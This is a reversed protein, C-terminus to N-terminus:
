IVRRNGPARFGRKRDPWSAVGFTQPTPTAISGPYLQTGAQGISCRTFTPVAGTRGERRAALGAAPLGSVTVCLPVCM